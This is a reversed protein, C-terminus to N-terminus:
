YYEVLLLVISRHQSKVIESVGSVRCAIAVLDFLSLVNLWVANNIRAKRATFAREAHIRRALPMDKADITSCGRHIALLNM